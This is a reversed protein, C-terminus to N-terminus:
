SSRWSIDSEPFAKKVAKDLLLEQNKLMANNEKIIIM